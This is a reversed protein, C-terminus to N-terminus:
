CCHSKIVFTKGSAQGRRGRRGNMSSMKSYEWWANLETFPPPPTSHCCKREGMWLVKNTMPTYKLMFCTLKSIYVASHWICYTQQIFRMKPWTVHYCNLVYSYIVLLTVLVSSPSGSFTSSNFHNKVSFHKFENLGM